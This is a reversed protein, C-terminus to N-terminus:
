LAAVRLGAWALAVGGALTVALYSAAMRRGSARDLEVVENALTSWTSLAGFLGVRVVLDSSNDLGSLAGVAFSAILNAMLTGVPVMGDANLHLALRWRILGGLAAAPLVLLIM